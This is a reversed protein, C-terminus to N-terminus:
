FSWSIIIGGRNKKHYKSEHVRNLGPIKQGEVLISGSPFMKNPTIQTHNSADHMFLCAHKLNQQMYDKDHQQLPSAELTFQTFSLICLSYGLAGVVLLFFPFYSFTFSLFSFSYIIIM